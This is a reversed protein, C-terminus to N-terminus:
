DNSVYFKQTIVAMNTVTAPAPDPVQFRITIPAVYVEGSNGNISKFAGPVIVDNQFLINTTGENRVSIGNLLGSPQVQGPSSIRQVSTDYYLLCKKGMCM